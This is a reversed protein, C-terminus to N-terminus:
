QFYILQFCHLLLIYYPYALTYSSSRFSWFRYYSLWSPLQPVHLSYLVAPRRPFTSIICFILQNAQLNRAPFIIIQQLQPLFHCTKQKHLIHGLPLFPFHLYNLHFFSCRQQYLLQQINPFTRHPRRM